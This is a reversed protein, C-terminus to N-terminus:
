AKWNLAADLRQQIYQLRDNLEKAKDDTNQVIARHQADMRLSLEHIDGKLEGREIRAQDVDQKERELKAVRSMVNVGLWSLMSIIIGILGDLARVSSSPDADQM